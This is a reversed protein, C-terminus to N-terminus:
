RLKPAFIPVVGGGRVGGGWEGYGEQGHVWGAMWCVRVEADEALRQFEWKRYKEWFGCKRWMDAPQM